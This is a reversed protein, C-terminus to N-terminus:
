VTSALQMLIACLYAGVTGVIYGFVALLIGVSTLSPHFEAAVVPASEAGGVNAQSGVALFFFPAKIWKAVLILLGAHIGIWIFGILILSPNELVRGIDMKMGITAVLIYIFLSGIKSSGAGEFSKAKTFSLGIGVSTAIVVMWLFRSGLSSLVQDKDRIVAFNDELFGAWLDGFFHAAGVGAFALSFLLILDRLQTPRTIRENHESVRQKLEEISSNDAKLWRDIRDSRGVGLLIIAMWVNAVVIDVLVMGGYKEPNYQFVELMAAQNAGGGIWSGAITALGRWIEDAGSAGLSEPMFTAVILVAVPGGLIIGFTGTLFMILAKPGLNLLAKLDISLTMLILAAPLRYRSAVFYLQSNPEDVIGFSSLLAPLLYCMLVAPVISYFRKWIGSNSSSAYFVFGLCLAILGLVVTDNAIPFISAQIL